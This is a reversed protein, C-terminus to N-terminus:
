VSAEIVNAIHYEICSLSFLAKHKIVVVYSSERENGLDERGIIDHM